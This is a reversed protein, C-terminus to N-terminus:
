RRTRGMSAAFGLVINGDEDAIVYQCISVVLPGCCQSDDIMVSYKRTHSKLQWLSLSFYYHHISPWIDMLMFVVAVSFSQFLLSPNIAMNGKVYFM